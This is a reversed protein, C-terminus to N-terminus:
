AQIMAITAQSIQDFTTVTKANASYAQQAVIMKAFEAAVDVNSSEVYGGQIVGRGGTGAVGVGASGSGVTAQYDNNGTRLLGQTNAFTAVAVQGLVNVQGNSYTGNVTGDSAIAIETLTGSAQGDQTSSGNTSALATQTVSSTGNANQLNWTLNMPAAGDVLAPITFSVGGAPTELNGSSDFTLNGSAVQSSAAGTDATPVSVSYSWENTGTKTYNVTMVHSTGLSDYIASPSSFTAGVASTASLNAPLQFTTTASAPIESGLGVQLPQLTGSTNVVGNTAPFGLVSEGDATTLLGSASTTFNGARTYETNGNSTQVVFLGNGSLAMNTAINTASAAGDTFDTTTQSAAVGLGIQIPDNSANAQSSQAFLDSFSSNQDKYGVTDLNALNNSVSQLQDQSTILGSLPVGFFSM